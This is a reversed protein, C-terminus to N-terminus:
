LVTCYRVLEASHEVISYVYQLNVRVVRLHMLTVRRM